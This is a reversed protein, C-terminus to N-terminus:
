NPSNLPAGREVVVQPHVTWSVCQVTWHAILKPLQRLNLKKGVLANMCSTHGFECFQFGPKNGINMELVNTWM